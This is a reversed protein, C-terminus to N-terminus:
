QADRPTLEWGYASVYSRGDGIGPHALELRYAGNRDHRIVRADWPQAVGDRTVTVATGLDIPHTPADPVREWPGAVLYADARFAERYVDAWYADDEGTLAELARVQSRTMLARGDALVDLVALPTSVGPRTARIM